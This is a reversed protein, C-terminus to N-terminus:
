SQYSVYAVPWQYAAKLGEMIVAAEQVWMSLPLYIKIYGKEIVIVQTQGLKAKKHASIEVFGAEKREARKVWNCFTQPILGNETAYTWVKKKSQRWDELWM